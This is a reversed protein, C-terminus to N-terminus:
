EELKKYMNPNGKLAPIFRRRMAFPFLKERIPRVVLAIVVVIVAAAIISVIIAVM